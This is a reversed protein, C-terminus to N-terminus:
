PNNEHQQKMLVNPPFGFKKKFCKSFYFQDNFGVSLAVQQCSLPASDLLSYAKELRIGTLFEIVSIGMEEKFKTSIYNPHACVGLAIMDLNLQPQAYHSVLYERVREVLPPGEGTADQYAELVLAKLWTIYETLSSFRELIWLSSHNEWPFGSVGHNTHKVLTILDATYCELQLPCTIERLQPELLDYLLGGNGAQVLAQNQMMTSRVSVLSCDPLNQNYHYVEPTFFRNLLVRRLLVFGERLPVKENCPNGLASYWTPPLKDVVHTQGPKLLGLTMGNPLFFTPVDPINEALLGNILLLRNGHPSLVMDALHASLQEQVDEGCFYRYLIDTDKLQDYESAITKQKTEWILSTVAREMAELLLRSDIPKLLYDSASNKLASVAYDFENYGTLIIFKTLIGAKRSEQLLEIGSMHPMAIDTIIIDPALTTLMEQAKLGDDAMGVVDYGAERLHKALRERIIYEDDAIVVRCTNPTKRM